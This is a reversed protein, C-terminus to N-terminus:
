SISAPSFAVLFNWPSEDQYVDLWGSLLSWIELCDQRIQQIQCLILSNENKWRRFFWSYLFLQHLEVLKFLGWSRKLGHSSIWLSQFRCPHKRNPLNLQITTNHMTCCVSGCDRRTRQRSHLSRQHQMAVKSPVTLIGFVMKQEKSLFMKKGYFKNTKHCALQACRVNEM